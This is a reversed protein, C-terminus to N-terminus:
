VSPGPSARLAALAEPCTHLFLFCSASGHESIPQYSSVHYFVICCLIRYMWKLVATCVSWLNNATPLNYYHYRASWLCATEGSSLVNGKVSPALCSTVWLWCTSHIWIYNKWILSFPWKIEWLNIANCWSYPEAISWWKLETFISM